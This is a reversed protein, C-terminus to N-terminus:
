PQAAGLSRVYNVTNWIDTDSVRGAYGDMDISTGNRIAAFMEGDSPGFEWSDDTLDSPQAGTTAIGDGKGTPGHCRECMRVYIRRGAAISAPTPTVPNTVKAAEPDGGKKAQAAAAACLSV